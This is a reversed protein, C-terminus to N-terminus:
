GACLHDNLAPQIAARDELLGAVIRANRDGEAADHLADARPTRILSAGAARMIFNIVLFLASIGLALYIM